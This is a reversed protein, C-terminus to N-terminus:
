SSHIQKVQASASDTVLWDKTRDFKTLLLIFHREPALAELLGGLDLLFHCWYPPCSCLCFYHAFVVM